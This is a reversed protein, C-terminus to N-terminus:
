APDTPAPLMPVTQVVTVSATESKAIVETVIPLDLFKADKEAL